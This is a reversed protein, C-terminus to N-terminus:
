SRWAVWAAYGQQMNPPLLDDELYYIEHDVQETWSELFSRTNDVDRLQVVVLIVTKRPECFTDLASILPAHLAPNYVCDICIVVDPYEAADKNRSCTNLIHKVYDEKHRQSRDDKGFNYIQLWDLECATVHIHPYKKVSNSINKQILPINSSQDTSIWQLPVDERIIWRPDSLLCTPLVGTGAGLELIKCGSLAGALFLCPKSPNWYGWLQRLIHETFYM